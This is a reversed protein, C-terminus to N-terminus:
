DGHKEEMKRRGREIFGRELRCRVGIWFEGRDISQVQCTLAGLLNGGLVDTFIQDGIVAIECLPLGLRAAGQRFGRALPKVARSIWPVGLAESFTRVREAKNNSLFLTRIGADQLSKVYVRLREEPLAALHSSVTGDIDILAGRIGRQRLFEPTVEFITDFVCDPTLVQLM